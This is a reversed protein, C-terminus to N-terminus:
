HKEEPKGWITSRAESLLCNGYDVYFTHKIIVNVSPETRSLAKQIRDNPILDLLAAQFDTAYWEAICSKILQDLDVEPIPETLNLNPLLHHYLNKTNEVYNQAVYKACASFIISLKANSLMPTFGAEEGTDVSNDMQDDEGEGQITRCNTFVTNVAVSLFQTLLYRVLENLTKKVEEESLAGDTQNTAAEINTNDM